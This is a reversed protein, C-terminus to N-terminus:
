IDVILFIDIKERNLAIRADELAWSAEVDSFAYTKTAIVVPADTHELAARIYPYTRYQEATDIFNVGKDMAALILDRGQELSLGACLPGLTLSGFCIRSVSIGSSGM